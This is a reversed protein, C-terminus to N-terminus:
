LYNNLFAAMGTQDAESQKDSHPEKKGDVEISSTNESDVITETEDISDDDIDVLWKNIWTSDPKSDSVPAKDDPEVEAEVEVVDDNIIESILDDSVFAEITEVPQEESGNQVLNAQEVAEVEAEVEVEVEASQELSEEDLTSTELEQANTSPPVPNEEQISTHTPLLALENEIDVLDGFDVSSGEQHDSVADNVLEDADNSDANENANSVPDLESQAKHNEDDETENIEIAISEINSVESSTTALKVESKDCQLEKINCPLETDPISKASGQKLSTADPMVGKDLLYIVSENRSLSVRSEDNGCWFFLESNIVEKSNSSEGRLLLSMTGDRSLRMPHGLPESMPHMRDLLIKRYDNQPDIFNFSKIAVRCVKINGKNTNYMSKIIPYATDSSYHKTTYKGGNFRRLPMIDIFFEGSAFASKAHASGFYMEATEKPSTYEKRAPNFKQFVELYSSPVVRYDKTLIRISFGGVVHNKAADAIIDEVFSQASEIESHIFTQTKHNDYIIGGFSYKSTRSIKDKIEDIESESATEKISAYEKELAKNAEFDKPIIIRGVGLIPPNSDKDECLVTAWKAVYTKESGTQKDDLFCQTFLIVGERQEPSNYPEAVCVKTAKRDQRSFEKISPSNETIKDLRLKVNVLEGDHTM